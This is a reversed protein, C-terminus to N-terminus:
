VVFVRDRDGPPATLFVPRNLGAAVRVTSFDQAAAIGALLVGAAAIAVTCRWLGSRM